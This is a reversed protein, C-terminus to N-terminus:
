AGDGRDLVADYQARVRHAWREATFEDEFRRRGAEGLRRRLDADAALTLVADVFRGADPPADVLLGTQHDAVIEPIGGVATAVVPVRAAMAELLATPFAETRSPHILVDTADLLEMVDDRYGTLVVADGLPAAMRSVEAATPGDGAVVLRVRPVRAVLRRVAELAVAHGKESRMASVMALVLDDPALGLEARVARGSGPRPGTLVGSRVTHIREATDWGTAVYAQRAHESVALVRTACHRRALAMLRSKTRDRVTDREWEIAHVTSVVPLGLSRAALGGVLDAYGLHTHVLDPRVAALHRRAAWMASPGIRSVPLLVPEIGLRRLRAAAPSGYSESLYGVSLEIDAEGAVAAFEPVLMEAGGVGLSDVLAHVHIPKRTTM